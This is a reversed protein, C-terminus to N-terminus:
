AASGGGKIAEALERLKRATEYPLLLPVLITGIWFWVYAFFGLVEGLVLTFLYLVIDLVLLVIYLAFMCVFFGVYGGVVNGDGAMAVAGIVAVIVLPLALWWGLTDDMVHMFVGPQKLVMGLMCLVAPAECTQPPAAAPRLAFGFNPAPLGIAPPPAGCRTFLQKLGADFDFRCADEAHGWTKIVAGPLLPEFWHSVAISDERLEKADRAITLFLGLIALAVAITWRVPRGQAPKKPGPQEFPGM